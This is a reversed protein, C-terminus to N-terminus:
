QPNCFDDTQIHLFFVYQLRHVESFWMKLKTASLQWIKVKGKAAM